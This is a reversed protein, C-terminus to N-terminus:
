GSAQPGMTQEMQEVWWGRVQERLRLWVCVLGFVVVVFPAVAPELVPVTGFVAMAPPFAARVAMRMGAAEPPALMATESPASPAGAVVSAIGSAAAGLAAPVLAAAAIEVAEVTPAVAVGVVAGVLSVLLMSVAVVPVHRLHLSGAPVPLVDARSPHDIEQALPEVGDLAAVFLALGSVLLLPTTGEHAGRAALGAVAGLLAARGVRAAPWRLVGRWGRTWVPLRDHGRAPVRVWPRIRPLEMALQRRLVIVTRVDQLTAAFRLQGVLVSRREAAELSTGGLLRLGAVLLAVAVVAPAVGALDVHLPWLALRGVFSTPSPPGGVDAADVVAWGLVALLLVTAHWSRLRVGSAVLACGYAAGVTVAAAAAGAAAWAPDSGPLRQAALHGAIAGVIAAVFLAFRVQRVAPGRLVRGRDVPALLVHRVEARELALPGGRSGSRLGIAIACAVVVGVVAPGDSRVDALGDGHVAADGVANSALLVGISGLLATLYARYLADIWHVDALRKRRRVRRLEDLAAATSV